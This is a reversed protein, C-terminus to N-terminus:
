AASNSHQTRVEGLLAQCVDRYGSNTGPPDGEDARTTMAPMFAIETLEQNGLAGCIDPLGLGKSDSILVFRSQKGLEKIWRSLSISAAIARVHNRTVVCTVLSQGILLGNCESTDRPLDLVVLDFARRAADIVAAVVELPVAHSNARGQSLFSVGNVKPLAATLTDAAIRGAGPDIDTWRTGPIEEAGLILDIGGGLQDLDIVVSSMGQTIAISALNAAFTSAGAGGSGGIISIVNGGLLEGAPESAAFPSLADVLWFNATPLELVNEAGLAVAHRWIDREFNPETLVGIESHKNLHVVILHARRPVLNEVCEGALDSGVLVFEYSEWTERAILPSAVVQVDIGLPDVVSKVVNIIRSDATVLLLMNTSHSM